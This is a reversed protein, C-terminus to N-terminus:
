CIQVVRTWSLGSENRIVLQCSLKVKTQEYIWVASLITQIDTAM